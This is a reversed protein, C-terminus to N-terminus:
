RGGLVATAGFLAFLGPDTSSTGDISVDIVGWRDLMLIYLRGLLGGIVMMPLVARTPDITGHTPDRTSPAM